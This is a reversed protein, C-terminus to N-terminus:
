LVIIQVLDCLLYESNSHSKSYPIFLFTQYIQDEVEGKHCVNHRSRGPLLSVYGVVLALTATDFYLTSM